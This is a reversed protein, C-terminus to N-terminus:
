LYKEFWKLIIIPALVLDVFLTILVIIGVLLGLTFIELSASKMLIFFGGVLIISTAIIAKGCELVATKIAVDVPVGKKREWQFKSLLHITDDVAIVFGVTFILAIEARLDVNFYGMIGAAMLLPIINLFIALVGLAINRFVLSLTISVILIAIILGVLTSEISKKQSIGILMDIGTLRAKIPRGKILGDIHYLIDKQIEEVKDTGLDKLQGSFKFMSREKNALYDKSLFLSLQREYKELTKSDVPLSIEKYSAPHYAKNMVRYYDVPSMVANLNPHGSVYEEIAYVVPLIDPELLTHGEESTLVLEFTQSGGFNEEFFQYSDFLDTEKPISYHSSNTRILTVGYVSILLLVAFVLLVMEQRKYLSEIKQMLFATFADFPKRIQFLRVSEVRSLFIPLYVLTLVFTLVVLVASELGFNRIAKMPTMYLVLFGIATTFSTIFTTFGIEKLANETALRSSIGKKTEIDFKICLHIVDSVAVILIITPLLNSMTSLPRGIFAMGGLFLVLVYVVLAIPFLIAAPKRFVFLLSLCLFIFIWFIFSSIENTLINKFSVDVVWRGWLFTKVGKTQKRLTNVDSIVTDLTNAELDEDVEIWLFLARGNDSIFRKSLVDSFIDKKSYSVTGNKRLTLYPAGTLGFMSKIPYKINLLSKVGRINPISKLRQSIQEVEILFSPDFVSDPAKVGLLILNEQSSFESKLEQYFNYDGDDEHFFQAIDTDLEISPIYFASFVFLFVAVILYANKYKLLIDIM